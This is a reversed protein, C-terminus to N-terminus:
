RACDGLLRDDGVVVLQGRVRMSSAQSLAEFLHGRRSLEAKDGETVGDGARCLPARQELLDRGDGAAAVLPM